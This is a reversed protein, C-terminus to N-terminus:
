PETKPKLGDDGPFLKALLYTIGYAIGITAAIWVAIGLFGLITDM